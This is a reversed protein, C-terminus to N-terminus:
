ANKKEFLARMAADIQAAPVNPKADPSLQVHVADRSKWFYGSNLGHKKCIEAFQAYGTMDDWEPEGNKKWYLDAATGWQHFSFGPLTNTAWPGSPQAGVEQMVKALFIARNTTLM